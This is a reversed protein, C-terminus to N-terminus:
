TPTTDQRATKRYAQPSIGFHKKFQRSFHETNLYGCQEAVQYIPNGTRELKDKALLLRNQIVDDMCSIGFRKRYIKQLHRPCIHLQKAMEPVSWPSSPNNKINMHLQLLELERFDDSNSSISEHLKSFLVQFLSQITFNKHQNNFFNEAALLRILDSIFLYETTSFPTEFPIDGHCIFPEDTYFRIWDDSYPKKEAAGYEIVCHPPYLIASHAPMVIRKGDIVYYTQIHAQILLWWTHREDMKYEFGVPHATNNQAFEIRIM